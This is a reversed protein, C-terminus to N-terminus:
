LKKGSEKCLIFLFEAVLTAVADIPCTLLKCLKNRATGEGEEPRHTVDRLPPLVQSRLFKRVPRHHRSLGCLVTLIPSCTERLSSEPQFHIFQLVHHFISHSIGLNWNM